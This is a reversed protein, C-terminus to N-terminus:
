ADEEIYPGGVPGLDTWGQPYTDPSWVNNNITSEYIHGNYTVRDGTQYADHAGTPQVFAPISEDEGGTEGEGDGEGPEPEPEPGPAPADTDTVDEWGQPYATPAWVNNDITSRWVKGGDTCCDGTMYPSTSMAVFPLAKAPDTSWVFGWQAPLTEPEGTYITSDYSQLLKVVRGATSRCVFGAARELMNKQACAAAFDPIYDEAAYLETGTMGTSAARLEAAKRQGYERMAQLVLEKDSTNSM